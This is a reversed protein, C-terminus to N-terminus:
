PTAPVEGRACWARATLTVPGEARVGLLQQRLHAEVQKRGAEDLSVVYAGAPGVGELFPRWYEEFSGFSLQIQLPAEEVNILGAGRWVAALEGQRSLKMTREPKGARAPDLAVVEDWFFRLMDTGGDYGWVCASIVGGPRTVRRMERAAKDHDPIFNMVLQAVTADFTGTEFRLAQADGVEFHVRKSATQLQAYEVFEPSPDIGVIESAPLRAAVVSALAGTGSGVDLVRDGDRVKAFQLHLPSLLRSWRGMFHEYDANKSFMAARAKKLSLDEEGPGRTACSLLALAMCGPLVWRVHSHNM